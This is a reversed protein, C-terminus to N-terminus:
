PYIPDWIAGTFDIIYCSQWVKLNGANSDVEKELEARSMNLHGAEIWIPVIGLKVELYLSDTVVRPSM